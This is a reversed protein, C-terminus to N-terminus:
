TGEGSLGSTSRFVARQGRTYLNRMGILLRERLSGAPPLLGVQRAFSAGDYFITNAVIRGDRVRISADAGRLDIRRGTALIGQFPAGSFTGTFRWRVCARDGQAVVDEVEMRSDPVAVFLEEFVALVEEKGRRIGLPVFDQVDDEALLAAVGGLDRRDLAAFVDRAVEEAPRPSM